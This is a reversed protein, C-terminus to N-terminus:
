SGLWFVNTGCGHLCRLSLRFHLLSNDLLFLDVWQSGEHIAAILALNIIALLLSRLRALVTAAGDLRLSSYCSVGIILDVFGDHTNLSIRLRDHDLTFRCLINIITLFLRPLSIALELLLCKRRGPRLDAAREVLYYLVLAGAAEILELVPLRREIVLM